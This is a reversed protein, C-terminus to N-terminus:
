INHDDCRVQKKKNTRFYKGCEACKRMYIKRCSPCVSSFKGKDRYLKDCRICQRLHRSEKRPKGDINLITNPM